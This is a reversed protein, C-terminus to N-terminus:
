MSLAEERAHEARTGDDSMACGGVGTVLLLALCRRSVANMVDIRAPSGGGETGRGRGRAGEPDHDAAEVRRREPPSPGPIGAHSHREPLADRLRLALAQ